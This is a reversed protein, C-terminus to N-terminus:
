SSCNRQYIVDLIDKGQCLNQFTTTTLEKYALSSALYEDWIKEDHPVCKLCNALGVGFNEIIEQEQETIAGCSKLLHASGIKWYLWENIIKSFQHYESVPNCDHGFNSSIGSHCLAVLHWLTTIRQNMVNQKEIKEVLIKNGSLEVNKWLNEPCNSLIKILKHEEIADVLSKWQQEINLGKEVLRTLSNVVESINISHVNMEALTEVYLQFILEPKEEWDEECILFDFFALRLVPDSCNKAVDELIMILDPGFGDFPHSSRYWSLTERRLGDGIDADILISFMLNKLRDTKDSMLSGEVRCNIQGLGTVTVPQSKTLDCRYIVDLISKGQCLAQFTTTGLEQYESSSILKEGWNTEDDPISKLCKDLGVVFREIIEEERSTIAGRSTLSSVSHSYPWDQITAEFQYYYSIPNSDYGLNSYVGPHCLAVLHWLATIRDGMANQKEIKDVLNNNGDSDVMKWINEPCNSLVKITKDEGIADLLSKWHQDLNLGQKVLSNLTGTVKFINISHYNVKALTEVYLKFMLEPKDEWYEKYILFDFFALRLEMNSCNKAVDGLIMIIGPDFNEFISDGYLSLIQLRLNDGIDADILISFILNKLREVNNSM